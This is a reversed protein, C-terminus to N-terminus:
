RARKASFFDLACCQMMKYINGHKAIKKRFARETVIEFFPMYKQEARFIEAIILM